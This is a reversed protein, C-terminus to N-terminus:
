LTKEQLSSNLNNTRLPWFSNPPTSYSTLYSYGHLKRFCFFLKSFRKRFINKSRAFIENKKVKKLIQIKRILIKEFDFIKMNKRWSKMKQIAVSMCNVFIFSLKFFFIRFINKSHDFIEFNVNKSFETKWRGMDSGWMENKYKFCLAISLDRGWSQGPINEKAIPHRITSFSSELTPSM